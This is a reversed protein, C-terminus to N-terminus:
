HSQLDSGTTKSTFELWKPIPLFFPEGRREEHHAEHTVWRIPLNLAFGQSYPPHIDDQPVIHGKLCFDGMLDFKPRPVEEKIDFLSGEYFNESLHCRSVQFVFEADSSLVIEDRYAISAEEPVKAIM